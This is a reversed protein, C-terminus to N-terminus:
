FAEVKHTYSNECFYCFFAGEQTDLYKDIQEHINQPIKSYLEIEQKFNQALKEKLENQPITAYLLQPPLYWSMFELCENKLESEVVELAIAWIYDRARENDKQIKHKLLWRKQREPLNNYYNEFDTLKIM